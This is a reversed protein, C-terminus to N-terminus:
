ATAPTKRPRGRRAPRPAEGDLAAIAADLRSRETAVSEIREAHETNLRTEEAAVIDRREVMEARLKTVTDSTDGTSAVPAPATGKPPTTPATKGPTTTM